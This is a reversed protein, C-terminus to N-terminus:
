TIKSDVLRAHISRLLSKLGLKSELAIKLGFLQLDGCLERMCVSTSSQLLPFYSKVFSSAMLMSAPPLISSYVEFEKHMGHRGDCGESSPASHGQAQRRCLTHAEVHPISM